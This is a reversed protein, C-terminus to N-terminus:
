TESPHPVGTKGWIELVLNKGSMGNEGFTLLCWAKDNLLMELFFYRWLKSNIAFPDMKPANPASKGWKQVFWIKGPFDPETVRITNDDQWTESFVLMGIKLYQIYPRVSTRVLSFEYSWALTPGFFIMQGSVLHCMELQKRKKCFSVLYIHNQMCFQAHCLQLMIFCPIGRAPYWAM